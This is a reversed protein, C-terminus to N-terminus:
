IFELVKQNGMILHEQQPLTEYNRYRVHLSFIIDDKVLLLRTLQWINYGLNFM